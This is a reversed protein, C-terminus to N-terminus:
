YRLAKKRKRLKVILLLLLLASNLGIKENGMSCGFSDNEENKPEPKPEEEERDKVPVAVLVEEPIPEPEIPMFIPFPYGFGGGGGNKPRPKKIAELDYEVALDEGNIINIVAETSLFGNASIVIRYEGAALGLLVFEGNQDSHLTFLLVDDQYIQVLADFIPQSQGLVRGHLNGPNEDLLFNVESGSLAFVITKKVENEFKDARVHVLYEGPALGDVLYSGSKDTLAQAIVVNDKLVEILAGAIPGNQGFVQGFIYGPDSGLKFDVIAIEDSFISVSTSQSLYSKSRVQM